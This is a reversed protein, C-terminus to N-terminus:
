RPDIEIQELVEAINEFNEILPKGLDMPPSLKYFEGPPEVAFGRRLRESFDSM